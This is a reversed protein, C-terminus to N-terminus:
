VHVYVCIYYYLDKLTKYMYVHVHVQLIAEYQDLIFLKEEVAVLINCQSTLVNWCSPRITLATFVNCSCMHMACYMNAHLVLRMGTIEKRYM